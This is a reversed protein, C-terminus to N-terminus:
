YSWDSWHATVSRIVLVAAEIDQLQSGIGTVVEALVELRGMFRDETSGLRLMLGDQRAILRDEIDATRGLRAMLGDQRATLDEISGLRADISGLRDNIIDLISDTSYLGDQLATLREEIVGLRDEISHRDDHVPGPVAVQLTAALEHRPRGPAPPQPPPPWSPAAQPLAGGQQGPDAVPLVGGQRRPHPPPVDAVALLGAQKKAQEEFYWDLNKLHERCTPHDGTNFKNCVCCYWQNNQLEYLGGDSPYAGPGWEYAKPPM